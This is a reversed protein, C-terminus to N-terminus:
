ASIKRWPGKRRDPLSLVAWYRDPREAAEKDKWGELAGDDHFILFDFNEDLWEEFPKEPTGQIDRPDFSLGIKSAIVLINKM